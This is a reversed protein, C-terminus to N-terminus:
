FWASGIIIGEIVVDGDVDCLTIQMIGNVMSLATFREVVLEM